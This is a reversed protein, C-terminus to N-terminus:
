HHTSSQPEPIGMEQRLFAELGEVLLPKVPRSQQSLPESADYLRLRIDKLGKIRKLPLIWHPRHWELERTLKESSSDRIFQVDAVEAYEIPQLEILHHPLWIELSEVFPGAEMIGALRTCIHVWQSMPDSLGEKFNRPQYSLILRKRSAVAKDCFLMELTRDQDWQVGFLLSQSGLLEYVITLETLCLRARMLRCIERRHLKEVVMSTSDALTVYWITRRLWECMSAPICSLREIRAAKGVDERVVMVYRSQLLPLVEIHIIRCTQYLSLLDPPALYKHIWDRLERPLGLYPYASQAM